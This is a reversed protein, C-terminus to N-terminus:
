KTEDGCATALCHNALEESRSIVAVDGSERYGCAWAVGHSSSPVLAAVVEVDQQSPTTLEGPDIRSEDSDLDELTGASLPMVQAPESLLRCAPTDADTRSMVFWAVSAVVVAVVVVM